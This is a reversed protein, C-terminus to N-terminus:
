GHGGRERDLRCYKAVQGRDKPKHPFAKAQQAARRGRCRPCLRKGIPDFLRGILGGFTRAIPPRFTGIVPLARCRVLDGDLGSVQRRGVSPSNRRGTGKECGTAKVAAGPATVALECDRMWM